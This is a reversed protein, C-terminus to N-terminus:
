ILIKNILHTLLFDYNFRLTSKKLVDKFKRVTLAEKLNFGAISHQQYFEHSEPYELLFVVEDKKIIKDDVLFTFERAGRFKTAWSFPISIAYKFTKEDTSKKCFPQVLLHLIYGLVVALWTAKLKV